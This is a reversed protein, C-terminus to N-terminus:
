DIMKGPPQGTEMFINIIAFAKGGSLEMPDSRGYEQAFYQAFAPWSIHTKVVSFVFELPQSSRFISGSTSFQM